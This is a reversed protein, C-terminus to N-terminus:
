NIIPVLEDRYRMLLDIGEVLSDSLHSLIYGELDCTCLVQLYHYRWNRYTDNMKSRLWSAFNPSKLFAKYFEVIPRKPILPLSPVLM